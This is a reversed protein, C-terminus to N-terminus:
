KVGTRKIKELDALKDAILLYNNNELKDLIKSIGKLLVITITVIAFALILLSFITFIEFSSM